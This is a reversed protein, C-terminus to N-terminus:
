LYGDLADLEKSLATTVSAPMDEDVHKFQIDNDLKKNIKDIVENIVEKPVKKRYKESTYDKYKNLDIKSIKARQDKPIEHGQGQMNVYPPLKDTPLEERVLNELAESYKKGLLPNYDFEELEKAVNISLIEALYLHQTLHKMYTPEDVGKVNGVQNVNITFDHNIDYIETLLHDLKKNDKNKLDKPDVNNKYEKYYKELNKQHKKHIAVVEKFSPTEDKHKEGEYSLQNIFKKATSHYDPKHEQKKSSQCGTLLISTTFIIIAILKFYQKM